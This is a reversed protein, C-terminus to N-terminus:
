HIELIPLKVVNNEIIFLARGKGRTCLAVAM